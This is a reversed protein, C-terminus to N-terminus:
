GHAAAGAGVTEIRDVLHVVIRRRDKPDLSVSGPRSLATVLRMGLGKRGAARPDFGLPFGPGEDSVALLVGTGHSAAASQLEVLVRGAGHKLANAVLEATILGLRPLLGAPVAAADPQADLVLSRGTLEPADRRTDSREGLDELLTALYVRADPVEGGELRTPTTHLHRHAGAVAEVRRAAAQLTARSSANAEGRAQLMLTSHLLQLGNAVRHDAERALLDEEALAANAHRLRIRAELLDAAVGALVEMRGSDSSVEPPTRTGPSAFHLTGLYCEERSFLSVSAHLGRRKSWFLSDPASSSFAPPASLPQEDCGLRDGTEEETIWVLMAPLGFLVRALVTLRDAEAGVRGFADFLRPDDERARAASDSHRRSSCSPHGIKPASSPPVVSWLRGM